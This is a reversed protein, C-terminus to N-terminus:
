RRRVATVGCGCCGAPLHGGPRLGVPGSWTGGYIVWSIYLQGNNVGGTDGVAFAFVDTQNDVGYQPSAAVAAGPPFTIELGVPGNWYGAGIVWAVYLEGNSGIFFVDTQSEVGYQPSASVNYNTV